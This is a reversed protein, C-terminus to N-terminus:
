QGRPRRQQLRAPLLHLSVGRGLARVRADVCGGALLDGVVARRQVMERSVGSRGVRLAVEYAADPEECPGISRRCGEDADAIVARQLRRVENPGRTPAQVGEGIVRGIRAVAGALADRVPGSQRHRLAHVRAGGRARAAFEADEDTVIPLALDRALVALRDVVELAVLLRGVDSAVADAVDPFQSRGLLATMSSEVDPPAVPAEHASIVSLRIERSETQLVDTAYTGLSHAPKSARWQRPAWGNSCGHGSARASDSCSSSCRKARWGSHMSTRSSLARSGAAAMVASAAQVAFQSIGARADAITADTATALATRRALFEADLESPGLLTCCRGAVGVALSGNVRLGMATPPGWGEYRETALLREQPVFHQEFTLRVTGSANVAAMALRKASLGAGARVDVLLRVLQGEDDANRAVIHAVDICGWGTMWPAFGDLEWGDAVRRARLLPAGPLMGAIVVGARQDGSCLLPLWQERLAENSSGAVARVVGHHQVWVFATTLCGGALAAVAECFADMDLNSGGAETPGAIGYLGAQALADLHGRPVIEAADTELATPFLLADALQRATTVLNSGDNSATTM